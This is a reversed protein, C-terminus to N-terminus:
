FWRKKTVSKVVDDYVQECVEVIQIVADARSNAADLQGTQADGFALWPGVMFAPQLAGTADTQVPLPAGPVPQRLADPVYRSCKPAPLNVATHTM